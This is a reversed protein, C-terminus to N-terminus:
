AHHYYRQLEWSTVQRRYEEWEAARAALFTEFIPEGLADRILPDWEAEELAEGLSSPLLEISRQALESRELHRLDEEVPPPLAIHQELGDLGARLMVALALYPNCSPDPLRLEIRVQPHDGPRVAPVRILAARNIRAWSVYVPAEFGPALRKYSNVLPALVACMARAHALQGAIFRRAQESVQYEDEPAYFADSGDPSLASQHVHLGSGAAQRLPKPMFVADLGLRQALARAGQKCTVIHDATRLADDPALDLEYQGPALEHHGSEVPVGALSLMHAIETDVRAGAGTPVDFYGSRDPPALPRAIPATDSRFLFFEIEPAAMYRLGHAGARELARVLAYRPDGYFREGGPTYIDCILRATHGGARESWPLIAFTTPDPRLILDREAVRAFGEISSGDFWTGHELASELQGVPLVVSKLAGAIDTFQLEVFRVQRREVTELIHARAADM